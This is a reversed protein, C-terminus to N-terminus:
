AHGFWQIKYTGHPYKQLSPCHEIQEALRYLFFILDHTSSSMCPVLPPLLLLLFPADILTDLTSGCSVVTLPESFVLLIGEKTM